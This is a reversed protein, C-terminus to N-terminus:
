GLQEIHRNGRLSSRPEVPFLRKADSVVKRFLSEATFDVCSVDEKGLRALLRPEPRLPASSEIAVKMACHRDSFGPRSIDGSPTSPRMWRSDIYKRSRASSHSLGMSRVQSLKLM